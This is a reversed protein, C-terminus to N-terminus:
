RWCCAATSPPRPARRDAPRDRGARGPEVALGARLLDVVVLVQRRAVRDLVVGVFPGLISFPLLTIALVAAISAADPQREPSFLVYSALAIQLVGDSSQTAVRVALLRRFYRHRWLQRLSRVFEVALASLGAPVEERVGDMTDTKLAEALEAMQATDVVDISQGDPTTGFGSIPAQLLAIDNADLRLSLATRRIEDDTLSNDVTLHKAVGGIFRTFQAPDSVVDASLGKAVIAKIVNRQNKARDLDGNPLQKRERVFWLAQEGAITIEGEPYDYGHASFADDNVM